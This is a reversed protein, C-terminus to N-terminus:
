VDDPREYGEMSIQIYIYVMALASVECNPRSETSELLTRPARLEDAEVRGHRPNGSSERENALIRRSCTMMTGIRASHASDDAAVARGASSEKGRTNSLRVHARGNAGIRLMGSAWQWQIDYVDVTRAGFDSVGGSADSLGARGGARM